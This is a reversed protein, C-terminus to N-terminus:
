AASQESGNRLQLLRRAMEDLELGNVQAVTERAAVPFVNLGCRSGVIAGTMAAITDSDGGLSAAVRCALWPEDRFASAVAFAAPVSEWTALSTGVLVPLLDVVGEADLGHVLDIAWRIRVAVDAGAIWHGRRSGRVAADCATDIMVDFTLGEVGASVAGAVAAAGALAV